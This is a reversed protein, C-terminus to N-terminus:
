VRGWSVREGDLQTTPEPNWEMDDLRAHKRAKLGRDSSEDRGAVVQGAVEFEEKACVPTIGYLLFPNADTCLTETRCRACLRVRTARTAHEISACWKTAKSRRALFLPLPDSQESHQPLRDLFRDLFLPIHSHAKDTYISIGPKTAQETHRYMDYRTGHTANM